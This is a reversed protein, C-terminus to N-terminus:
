RRRFAALVDAPVNAARPDRLMRLMRVASERGQYYGEVRLTPAFQARRYFAYAARNGERLEVHVTASGAVRASDLLWELLMNGVHRRQWAPAVALLTLHAREALFQMVAFGVVERSGHPGGPRGLAGAEQPSRHAAGHPPTMRASRAVLAVYDAHRMFAEMRWARYQWSLGTEILDRSLAAMAVADGPMAPEISCSPSPACRSMDVGITCGIRVPPM